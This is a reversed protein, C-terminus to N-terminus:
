SVTDEPKMIKARLVEAFTEEVQSREDDDLACEKATRLLDAAFAAALTPSFVNLVQTKGETDMKILGVVKQGTEESELIGVYIAGEHSLGSEEGFKFEMKRLKTSTSDSV